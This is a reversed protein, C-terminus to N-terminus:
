KAPQFQGIRSKVTWKTASEVAGNDDVFSKLLTLAQEKNEFPESHRVVSTLYDEVQTEPQIWIAVLRGQIDDDTPLSTVTLSTNADIHVGISAPKTWDIRSFQEKVISSAVPSGSETIEGDKAHVHTAVLRPYPIEGSESSDSTTPGNAAKSADGETPDETVSCGILGVAIVAFFIIVHNHNHMPADGSQAYRGHDGLRFLHDDM